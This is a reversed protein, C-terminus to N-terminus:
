VETHLKLDTRLLLISFLLMKDKEYLSQMAAYLSLKHGGSKASYNAREVGNTNRDWDELNMVSFRKTLMQLHKEEDVMPGM